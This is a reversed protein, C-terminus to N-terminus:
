PFPARFAAPPAASPPRSRRRCLPLRAGGGAGRRWPGCRATPGPRGAAQSPRELAAHRRADALRPTGPAPSGPPARPRPTPVARKAPARSRDDPGGQRAADTGTSRSAARVSAAGARPHTCGRRPAWGPVHTDPPRGRAGPDCKMPASRRGRRVPCWPPRAARDWAGPLARTTRRGRERSRAPSACGPARRRRGRRPSASGGSSSSRASRSISIAAQCVSSPAPSGDRAYGM